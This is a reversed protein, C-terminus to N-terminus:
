PRHAGTCASVLVGQSDCHEAFTKKPPPRPAHRSTTAPHVPKHPWWCTSVLVGQSDCRVAPPLGKQKTWPRAPCRGTTYAHKNAQINDHPLDHPREM